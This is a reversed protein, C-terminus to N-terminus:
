LDIGRLGSSETLVALNLKTASWRSHKEPDAGEAYQGDDSQFANHTLGWRDLRGDLSWM